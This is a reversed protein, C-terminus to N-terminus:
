LYPGAERRQMCTHTKGVGGGGVVGVRGERRWSCSGMVGGGDKKVQIAVRGAHAAALANAALVSGSGGAAAGARGACAATAAICATHQAHAAGGVM